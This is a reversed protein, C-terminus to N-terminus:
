QATEKLTRHMSHAIARADPDDSAALRAAVAERNARPHNQSLKDKIEIREALLRFGVIGSLMAREAPNGADFRWDGGARAEYHASTRALLDILRAEDDFSALRGHLHATSYNWTPVRSQEIKDPYWNASVYAHPGHVIVLTPGDALRAQPNARAWHGEILVQNEHRQYLVPLQSAIPSGDDTVGILTIFPDNDILADLRRLDDSAFARQILM